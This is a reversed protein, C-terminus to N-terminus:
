VVVKLLKKAVEDFSYYASVFKRGQLALNGRMEENIMLSFCCEVFENVGDGILINERDLVDIGEAGLTTSVVARQYCMAELIKIRTGGGCRIPAIVFDCTEYYPALSDVGGVVKINGNALSVINKPPDFGVINLNLNGSFMEMLKPWINEVFWLVGDTNPYYSLTGVFLISIEQHSKRERISLDSIIVSNPVVYVQASSVLAILKNKDINSCVVVGDYKKLYYLEIKKLRYNKLKEICYQERGINGAEIALSRQDAISEIDDFDVFKKRASILKLELLQQFVNAARIRFCFAVDFKKVLLKKELELLIDISPLVRKNTPELIEALLTFPPIKFFSKRPEECYSIVHFERCVETLEHELGGANEDISTIVLLHVRAGRALALLHAAARKQVGKGNLSPVVPSLMLIDKLRENSEM